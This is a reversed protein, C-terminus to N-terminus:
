RLRALVERLDHLGSAEEPTVGALPTAALRRYVAAMAAFLEPSAGAAGQTASIQEMEGVFRASKSTALAIQHGAGAVLGPFELRLDALVLDLVGLEDATQLAQAWLATTGKYISATCMKVGSAQGAREGVVVGRLHDAPLDALEAAREGSVYLITDTGPRPPPGSIAGDVFDLGADAARQELTAVVSPSVANLDAVLPRTTTRRCAAVIDALAAEAQSPPCVSVVVDSAAVVADLDDLLTLGDALRRTRESRGEVTALATAGNSQWARGLASGMAGPSVIGITTM